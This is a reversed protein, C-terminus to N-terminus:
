LNQMLETWVQQYIEQLSIKCDFAALELEGNAEIHALAWTSDTRTWCHGHVSPQELLVYHRLTEVQLYENRKENWDRRRTADSLVEAILVPQTKILPDSDSAACTVFVDPYRVNEGISVKVTETFVRCSTGRLRNWLAVAVGQVILNHTDTAGVMTYLQGDVLEHRITATQELVLYDDISLSTSPQATQGM